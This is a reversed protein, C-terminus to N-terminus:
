KIGLDSPHYFLARHHNQPDKVESKPRTSTYYYLILSKRGVHEPCTLPMPHGHFSYDDTAFIVCRNFDPSIRKECHLPEHHQDKSWLELHGGWHDQWDRNLYVIVNLRRHVQMIDHWNGDAHIALVGGRNIQNFGGGSLYPDAILGEIGTVASLWRLFYGSNFYYILERTFDPVQDDSQWNSRWKIQIHTHDRKDWQDKHDNKDLDNLLQDCYSDKLFQDIIVHRFPKNNVFTERLTECNLSAIKAFDKM